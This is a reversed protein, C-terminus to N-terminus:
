CIETIDAEKLPWAGQFLLLQKSSQLRSFQRNNQHGETLKAKQFDPELQPHPARSFTSKQSEQFFQGKPGYLLDAM